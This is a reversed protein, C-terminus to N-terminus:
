AIRLFQVEGVHYTWPTGDTSRVTEDGVHRVHFANAKGEIGAPMQAFIEELTPKFFAPAGFSHLTRVPDGVRGSVTAQKGTAGNWLFADHPGCRPYLRVAGRVGDVPRIDRVLRALRKAGIAPIPSDSMANEQTM